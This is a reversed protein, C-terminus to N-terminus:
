FQKTPYSVIATYPLTDSGRETTQKNTQKKEKKSSLIVYDDSHLCTVGQIMIHIINLSHVTHSIKKKM